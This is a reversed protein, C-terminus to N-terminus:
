TAPLCETKGLIEVNPRSPRITVTFVIGLSEKKLVSVNMGFQTGPGEEAQYGMSHFDSALASMVATAGQRPDAGPPLDGTITYVGHETGAPCGSADRGPGATKGTLDLGSLLTGDQRLIATTEEATMGDGCAAALVVVLAVVGLRRM